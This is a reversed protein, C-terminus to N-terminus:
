SPMPAPLGRVRTQLAFMTPHKYLMNDHDAHARYKAASARRVWPGLEKNGLSGPNYADFPQIRVESQVSLGVAPLM